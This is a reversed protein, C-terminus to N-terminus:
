PCCKLNHLVILGRARVATKRVRLLMDAGRTVWLETLTQLLFSFSIFGEATHNTILCSHKRPTRTGNWTLTIIKCGRETRHESIMKTWAEREGGGLNYVEQHAPSVKKFPSAWEKTPNIEQLPEATRGVGDEGCGRGPKEPQQAFVRFTKSRQARNLGETAVPRFVTWATLSTHSHKASYFHLYLPHRLGTEPYLKVQTQMKWQDKEPIGRGGAQGVEWKQINFCISQVKREGRWRNVPDSRGWSLAPSISHSASYGNSGSGPM